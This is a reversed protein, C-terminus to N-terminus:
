KFGEKIVEKIQNMETVNGRASKLLIYNKALLHFLIVYKIPIKKCM